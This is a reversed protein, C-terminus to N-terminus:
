HSSRSSLLRSAVFAMILVMVRKILKSVKIYGKVCIYM